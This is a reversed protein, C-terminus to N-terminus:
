AASFMFLASTSRVTTPLASRVSLSSALAGGPMGCILGSVRLSNKRLLAVRHHGASVFVVVVAQERLHQRV